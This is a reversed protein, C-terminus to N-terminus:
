VTGAIALVEDICAQPYRGGDSKKRTLRELQVAAQGILHVGPGRHLARLAAELEDGLQGPAVLAPESLRLTATGRDMSMRVESALPTGRYRLVADASFTEAPPRDATFRVDRLAYERTAIEDRRGVVAAGRDLARGRGYLREGPGVGVGARLAGFRPPGESRTPAM